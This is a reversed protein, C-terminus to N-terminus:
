ALWAPPHVYQGVHTDKANVHIPARPPRPPPANFGSAYSLTPAAMDDMARTSVCPRIHKMSPDGTTAMLPVFRPTNALKPPHTGMHIGLMGPDVLGRGRGARGRPSMSRTRRGRGRGSLVNQNPRFNFGLRHVQGTGLGDDRDEDLEPDYLAAVLSNAPFYAINLSFLCSVVGLLLYIVIRQLLALQALDWSKPM